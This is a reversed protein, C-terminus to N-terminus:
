IEKRLTAIRRQVRSIASSADIGYKQSEQYYLLSRSLMTIAWENVKKQNKKKSVDPVDNAFQEFESAAQYLLQAQTKVAKKLQEQQNSLLQGQQEIEEQQKNITSDQEIITTKQREITKKLSYIETEREKIITNLNYVIKKYASNDEIEKELSNIRSKIAKIKNSIRDAQKLRATGNEIDVRLEMTNGSIEALESLTKNIIAAQNLVSSHTANLSEKLFINEDKLEDYDKQSVGGCSWLLSTLIFLSIIKYVRM